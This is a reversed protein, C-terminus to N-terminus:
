SKPYANWFLVAGTLALITWLNPGIRMLAGDGLGANALILGLVILAITRLLVHFGIQLLSSNRLMRRELAIPITMGLIFLFAPFVMDVYTMVNIQAPAHYNWWPLGKVEALENVFIMLIMTLGRFIDISVIRQSSAVAEANTPLREATLNM